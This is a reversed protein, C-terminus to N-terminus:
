ELRITGCQISNLSMRVRRPGQRSESQHVTKPSAVTIDVYQLPDNPSTYRSMDSSASPNTAARQSGKVAGRVKAM